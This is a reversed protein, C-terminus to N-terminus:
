SPRLADIFGSDDIERVYSLDWLKGPDVTAATPFEEVAIEYSNKLAEDTPYPRVRVGQTIADFARRAIVRDEIGILRMPEGMAIEFAEDPQNRILSLAHLMARVYADFLEKHERPFSALCAQAYHSVIDIDPVDLVALGAELAPPLYLSSIWAAVCDGDVVKKWQQWRGINRDHIETTEVHDLLGIARLRMTAAHPRGPLRIVIRGGRLEDISCIGPRVVLELGTEVVPACFFTIGAGKSVRDWLYELHEILIHSEGNFISEEFEENTPFRVVEVDLDYHQRAMEKICWIVPTRDVDRYALKISRPQNTMASFM